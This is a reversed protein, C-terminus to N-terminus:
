VLGAPPARLGVSLLPTFPYPHGSYPIFGYRGAAEAVDPLLGRASLPLVPFTMDVCCVSNRLRGDDDHSKTYLDGIGCEPEHDHCGDCGGDDGADELQSHGAKSVYDCAFCTAGDPAHRHPVAIHALLLINACVLWM